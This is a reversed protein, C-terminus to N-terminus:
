VCHAIKLRNISSFSNTIIGWLDVKEGNLIAKLRREKIERKAFSFVYEVPNYDPSYIPSFVYAISLEDM